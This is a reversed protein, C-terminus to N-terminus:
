KTLILNLVSAVAATVGGVAGIATVIALVPALWRDRQLKLGEAYLKQQEAAFKQSEAILKRQEASFKEAEEMRHFIRALVEAEDFRDPSAGTM